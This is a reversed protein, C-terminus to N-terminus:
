QKRNELIACFIPIRYRVSDIKICPLIETDRDATRAQCLDVFVAGQNKVSIVSIGICVYIVNRFVDNTGVIIDALAVPRIWQERALDTLEADPVLCQSRRLYPGTVTGSVLPSLAIQHPEPM